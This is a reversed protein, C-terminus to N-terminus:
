QLKPKRSQTNTYSKRGGSRGLICSQREKDLVGAIVLVALPLGYCKQAIIRGMLELHAPFRQKRFVKMKLLEFSEQSELFRLAHPKGYSDAHRAVEFDRTTVLVRSGNQNNPFVIKLLELDEVHWVDDMVILYKEDKLFEKIKEGLEEESMNKYDNTQKTFQRIIDMFIERRNMSRSVCVMKTLTTKDLGAM